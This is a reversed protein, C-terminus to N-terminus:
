TDIYCCRRQQRQGLGTSRRQGSPLRDDSQGNRRISADVRRPVLHGLGRSSLQPVTPHLLGRGSQLSQDRHGSRWSGRSRERPRRPVLREGARDVGLQPRHWINRTSASRARHRHGHVRWDAVGPHRIDKRGSQTPRRHDPGHFYTQKHKSTHKNSVLKRGSCKPRSSRSSTVSSPM